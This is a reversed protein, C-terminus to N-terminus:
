APIHTWTKRNVIRSVNGADVGFREALQSQSADGAAYLRRIEVVDADVLKATNVRSGRAGRGKNTRDDINEQHTGLSMHAPNCCPPNDCGHIVCTGHYGEGAPIPGHVMEWVFRHLLTLRGNISPRGYGGRLSRGTWEWCGSPSEVIQSRVRAPLAALIEIFTAM